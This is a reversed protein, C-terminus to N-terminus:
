PPPRQNTALKGRDVSVFLLRADDTWLVLTGDPLAAIDRLRQGLVIPESYVIRRDGDRRLRFLTRARLSAVLLDGDWAPHFNAIEILNSVGISPVWAFVPQEFPRATAVGSDPWDYSGYHVGLTTVPWGYNGGAVIRNLEDGGQPGHETSYITGTATMTLGQPNRHGLSLRTKANTRLDIKLIKGFDSDPDQAELRSSMFVNDQNYDGATLYLDKGNVFMRGGGAIGSYWETALPPGEYIDQWPGLPRLDNGGLRIASVALATTRPEPLYREYSIFLRLAGPEARAELDHVVFGTNVLYPGLQLPKRASRDYDEAHNPLIPLALAKIVDGKADATFFAGKFDVIIITSGVIAIGGGGGPRAGVESLAVTDITLPLLATDLARRVHEAPQEPAAPEAALAPVAALALACALIAIPRRSVIRTGRAASIAPAVGSPRGMM